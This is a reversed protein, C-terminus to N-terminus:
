AHGAKAPMAHLVEGTPSVLRIAGHQWIRQGTFSNEESSRDLIERMARFIADHQDDAQFRLLVTTAGLSASLRYATPPNPNRVWEDTSM